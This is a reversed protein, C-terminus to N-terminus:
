SAVIGLHGCVASFDMPQLILEIAELEIVDRPAEVLRGVHKRFCCGTSLQHWHADEGAVLVHGRNAVLLRFLTM